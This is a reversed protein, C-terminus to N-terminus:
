PDVCGLEIACRPGTDLRMATQNFHRMERARPPRDPSRFRSEEETRRERPRIPNALREGCCASMGRGAKRGPSKRCLANRRM